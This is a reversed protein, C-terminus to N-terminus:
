VLKPVWSQRSKTRTGQVVLSLVNAQNERTWWDFYKPKMPELTINLCVLLRSSIVLKWQLLLVIYLTFQVCYLTCHVSYLTCVYAFQVSSPVKSLFCLKLTTKGLIVLHTCFLTNRKFFIFFHNWEKEWLSQLPFIFPPIPQFSIM